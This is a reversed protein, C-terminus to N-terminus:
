AGGEGADGARPRAGPGGVAVPPWAPWKPKSAAGAEEEEEDAEAEAEQPRAGLFEPCSMCRFQLVALALALALSAAQGAVTFWLAPGFNAGRAHTPSLHPPLLQLIGASPSSAAPTASVM